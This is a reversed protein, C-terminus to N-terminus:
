ASGSTKLAATRILNGDTSDFLIDHVPPAEDAVVSNPDFPQGPPHKDILVERVTTTAGPGSLTQDDLQLM